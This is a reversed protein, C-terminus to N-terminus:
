CSLDTVNKKPANLKCICTQGARGPATKLVEVGAKMIMLLDACEQKARKGGKLAKDCTSIIHKAGLATSGEALSRLYLIDEKSIM